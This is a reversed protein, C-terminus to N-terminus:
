QAILWRILCMLGSDGFFESSRSVPWLTFSVLKLAENQSRTLFELSGHLTPNTFMFFGRHHEQQMVSSHRYGTWGDASSVSCEQLCAMPNDLQYTVQHFNSSLGLLSM